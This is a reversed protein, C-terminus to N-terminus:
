KAKRIYIQGHMSRLAIEPGGGNIQASVTRELNLKYKPGNERNSETRSLSSTVALDFDSYTDGRQNNIRILTSEIYAQALAQRTLPNTTGRHQEILKAVPSGGVPDSAAPASGRSRHLIRRSLGGLVVLLVVLGVKVLLTRGFDTHLLGYVSGVQRLSQAVGSAVVVVVGAFALSSVRGAVGASDAPLESAGVAPARVLFTALLVLGGIWLSAAALHAVDVVLGVAPSTGTAAHGALGATALLALGVLCVLLTLGGGRPRRSGGGRRGSRDAVALLVPVALLLLAARVVAVQGLRTHLVGSVLSPRLADALPLASAYPGQLLVALVTTAALVAWSGALLRRVRRSRGGGPWALRVLVALGVLVLLAAFAAFRVLGVAVGVVPSGSRAAITDAEAAAAKAGAATGVSFTFAGHVPHSDASVVRWAVIYTGRGLGADLAVAVAGADAGPHHAGGADVRRGSPALVRLAGPDATVPESFRLVVQHPPVPLVTGPAPDSTELQAHAAAPGAWAALGALLAVLAM